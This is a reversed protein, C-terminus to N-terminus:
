PVNDGVSVVRYLNLPDNYGSFEFLENISKRYLKLPNLKLEKMLAQFIEFADAPFGNLYSQVTKVILSCGTIIREIEIDADKKHLKDIHKQYLHYLEELVSAFDDGAWRIPLYLREDDFIQKFQSNPIDFIM